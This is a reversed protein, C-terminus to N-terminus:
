RASSGSCGNRRRADQLAGLGDRSLGRDDARHAARQRLADERLAPGALARRGLLAFLRRRPSRLHRGPLHQRAHQRRRRASRRQRLPHRRAVAALLLEVASVEARGAPRRTGSRNGAGHTRHSGEAAPRRGDGRGLGPAPAAIRRDAGQRKRRGERAGRPVGGLHAELVDVFAPRGYRHERPFYTGGWVPRAETDLFMTLPWGGQEGTAHLAAMYIQDIDPREERDVKINVYRENM